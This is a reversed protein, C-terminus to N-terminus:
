LCVFASRSFKDPFFNLVTNCRMSKMATRWIAILNCRFVLSLMSQSWCVNISNTYSIITAAWATNKYPPCCKFLGDNDIRDMLWLAMLATRSFVKM